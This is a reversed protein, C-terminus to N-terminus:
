HIAIIKKIFYKQKNIKITRSPNPHPEPANLLFTIGNALRNYRSMPLSLVDDESMNYVIAIIAIQLELDPLNDNLVERIRQYQSIKLDSYTM